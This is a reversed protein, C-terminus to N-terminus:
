SDLLQTVLMATRESATKPKNEGRFQGRLEDREAIHNESGVLSDKVEQASKRLLEMAKPNTIIERIAKAINTGTMDNQILEPFAKRKLIFNVLGFYPLDMDLFRTSFWYTAPHVKGVLIAPTGMLACELTATGLAVVALDAVKLVKHTEGYVQWIVENMGALYPKVDEESITPARALLFQYGGDKQLEKVASVMEPLYNKIEGKRSGPLLAITTLDPSLGFHRKLEEKDLNTPITEMLPHGVFDTEIGLKRFIPEEFPFVVALRDALRALARARWKRWIWVQPTIYYLIKMKNRHFKRIFWALRLNFDPYDIMVVVKPSERRIAGLVKLFVSALRPLKAFVEAIGFTSLENIHVILKAGASSLADGGVGFVEVDAKIQKLASVLRGAYGDGSAEGAIIFVKNEGAM